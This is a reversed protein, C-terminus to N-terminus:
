GLSRVLVPSAAAFHKSLLPSEPWVQLAPDAGIRAVHRKDVHLVAKTLFLRVYHPVSADSVAGHLLAMWAPM